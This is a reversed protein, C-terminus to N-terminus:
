SYHSSNLRTSKRDTKAQGIVDRGALLLPIAQAQIATPEEYALHEIAKVLKLDLEMNKFDVDM